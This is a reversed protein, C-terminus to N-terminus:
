LNDPEDLVGESRWQQLSSLRQEMSRSTKAASEISFSAEQLKKQLLALAEDWTIETYAGDGSRKLPSRVRAPSYLMQVEAAALSSIGGGLPHGASPLVRVPRGDVLRVEMAVASPCTKSVTRVFSNEGPMNAPIWPWNQSWISVDDLLKWPLPTAMIGASAGAVFKIFSRRDLVM